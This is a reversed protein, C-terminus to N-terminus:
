GGAVPWWGGAPDDSLVEPVKGDALPEAAETLSSWPVKLQKLVLKEAATTLTELWHGLTEATLHRLEATHTLIDDNVDDGRRVKSRALM